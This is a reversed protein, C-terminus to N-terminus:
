FMRTYIVVDAAIFRIGAKNAMRSSGAQSPPYFSKFTPVLFKWSRLSALCGRPGQLKPRSIPNALIDCKQPSNLHSCRPRQTFSVMLFRIILRRPANHFDLIM